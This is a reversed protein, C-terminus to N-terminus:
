KLAIIVLEIRLYRFRQRFIKYLFAYIYKFPSQCSINQGTKDDANYFRYKKAYSSPKYIKRKSTMKINLNQIKMRMQCFAEYDVTRESLVSSFWELTNVSCAQVHCIYDRFVSAYKICTGLVCTPVTINTRMKLRTWLVRTFNGSCTWLFNELM